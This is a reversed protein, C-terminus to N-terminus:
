KTKKTRTRVAAAGAAFAAALVAAWLIPSSSDGTQVAKDASSGKDPKDTGAGPKDTDAGPKDQGGTGPKDPDEGPTPDPTESGKEELLAKGDELAKIAAAFDDAGANDSEYTLYATDYVEQYAALSDETYKDTQELLAKAAELADWLDERTPTEPDPQTSEAKFVAEITGAANMEYSEVAGVSEGNVKVDAIVYGEDATITFTQTEGANVTVEGSPDISGGEGASATITYTEPAPIEELAKVAAELAAAQADVDTQSAEPDDYVAQATKIATKLAAISEPTYVDEKSAEANATELATKLKSKDASTTEGAKEILRIDFKDIQPGKGDDPATLILTGAGAETVTMNFTVTDTENNAKKVAQTGGAINGEPDSYWQIKNKASGSSYTMTVEYIGAVDARYAFKIYDKFALCNVFEGGSAWGGSSIALPWNPDSDSDNSNILETAHEAELTVAEGNEETPFNFPAAETYNSFEFVAEIAADASVNEFTYTDVAGVSEGNVIVDAIKYGDDATITYTKSEGETVVTDGEDSISGGEGASATVTYRNLTIDGPTIVFRDLQPSNGEPGTLIFVGTGPKNVTLTFTAEHTTQANDNAGASQTGAAIIDEPESSWSLANSNSGSRYYATVNYTGAKEAKFYYEVSDGNNLSNLFKGNSAWAAEAVELPWKNTGNGDNSEDNNLASAFEAELTASSGERWPLVFPDDETYKERATLGADAEELAAIAAEIQETTAEPNEAVAVAEAYAAAYADWGGTYWEPIRGEGEAILAQLVEVSSSETDKIVVRATDNFGLVAGGTPETLTVTFYLDGTKDEHRKSTVTATKTTEGDEFTLTTKEDPDMHGQVASGPENSVLVTATGKSGGVRNVTIQLQSDENMTYSDKEIEFMGAGGNNLVAAAEVGIAKNTVVLRLTHEGDSLTDSKFIVQGLSRSAANTDISAVKENDIYIDATGHNPDTTGILYVQTGKFHVTFEAGKNAYMSSGDSFQTGTEQTWGNYEFYTGDAPDKDTNDIQELDSPIGGALEFDASAKYVGVESIMPVKGEPTSVTIKIETARVVSTRVLRKAGITEGEDMVHWSDDEGNRYEVKYSNIRQGNQIAEEISVVDVRKTGGLNILLSGTNTGDNTTWYTDDNGDVTMGPGYATDNERVQSAKVAANEDAAMNTRFTDKINNGFEEVRDLIAEDVTGKNNPPVNLLLPANHGVSNFYMNGLETISKPTKKNEGWFWGSTIRADVEPVTWQNGDPSGVTVNYGNESIQYSNITNKERDITSKSWTNKGAYGSENGIWRVTTYSEAGFLMCDADYKAAEGEYKQITEFWKEFTYTQATGGNAGDMWVEVFHGNNGYKPSSLIEELQNNYYENYADVNVAYNENHIDWPSLYLGMDMDADSCAKSIEELIDGKGDKYDVNGMDYDDNYESQWICFGDHHKATVILKKFGAEKLTQVLTEADFDDSLTFLENAPRDGYSDGWEVGTFTNPGFHCFAALEDKQYKYQNADPLVTDKEPAETSKEELDADSVWTEDAQVQLPIGAGLFASGTMAAAM